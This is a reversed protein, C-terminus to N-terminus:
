QQEHLIKELQAGAGIRFFRRWSRNLEFAIDDFLLLANDIRRARWAAHIEALLMRLDEDGTFPPAAVFGAPAQAICDQLTGPWAHHCSESYAAFGTLLADDTFFDPLQRPQTGSVEGGGWLWLANLPRKGKRERAANHPHAFLSMEIESTLAYYPRAAADRFDPMFTGPRSRDISTAPLDAVPLVEAGRLYGHGGHAEFRLARGSLLEEQLDQLMERFAAHEIDADPPVHLFLQERGAETWVPDAAAVWGQPAEGTEGWLRMAARGATVPPEQLEALLQELLPTGPQIRRLTARTLWGRPADALLDAARAPLAVIARRALDTAPRRQLKTDTM